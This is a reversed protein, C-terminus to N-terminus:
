LPAGHFLDVCVCVSSLDPAGMGAIAPAEATEGAAAAASPAEALAVEGGDIGPSNAVLPVPASPEVLSM